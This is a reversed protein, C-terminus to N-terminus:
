IKIIWHRQTCGLPVCITLVSCIRFAYYYNRPTRIWNDIFLLNKGQRSFTVFHTADSFRPPHALYINWLPFESETERPM